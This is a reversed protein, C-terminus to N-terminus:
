EISNHARVKGSPHVSVWGGVGARGSRGGALGGVHPQIVMTKIIENAERQNEPSGKNIISVDRRTGHQEKKEKRDM